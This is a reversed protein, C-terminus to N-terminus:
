DIEYDVEDEPLDRVNAFPVYTRRVVPQAEVHRQPVGSMSEGFANGPEAGGQEEGGGEDTEDYEAISIYEPSEICHEVTESLRSGPPTEQQATPRPSYRQKKISDPVAELNEEAKRKKSNTTEATSADGTKRREANEVDQGDHEAIGIYEPSDIPNKATECLRRGLPTEQLATPGPSCSQKETNGSVVEPTEEAKRGKLGKEKAHLMAKDAEQPTQATSGDATPRPETNGEAQEYYEDIRIYDHREIDRETTEIDTNTPPSGETAEPEHTCKRRKVRDPIVELAEPKRKKLGTEYAHPAVKGVELPTKTASGNGTPTPDADLTKQDQKTASTHEPSQTDLKETEIHKSKPPHEERVEGKPACMQRKVRDPIPEPDETKLKESITEDSRSVAKGVGSPTEETSGDGAPARGEGGDNTKSALGKARQAARQKKIELKLEHEHLKAKFSKIKSDKAAIAEAISSHPELHEPNKKKPAMQHAPSVPKPIHFPTRPDLVTGAPMRTLDKSMNEASKTGKPKDGASKAIEQRVGASKSGDKRTRGANTEKTENGGPKTRTSEAGKPKIEEAKAGETKTAAPKPEEDAVKGMQRKLEHEHLQAKLDRIKAEYAALAEANGAPPKEPRKRNLATQHTRRVPRQVEVTTEDYPVEVAPIKKRDATKRNEEAKRRQEMIREFAQNQRLEEISPLSAMADASSPHPQLHELSKEGSSPSNAHSEANGAGLPAETTLIKGILQERQDNGRTEEAAKIGEATTKANAHSVANEVELFAGTAAVGLGVEKDEDSCKRKEGVKRRQDTETKIQVKRELEHIKGLIAANRGAHAPTADASEPDPQLHELTKEELAPNNAHSETNWAGLPAETTPIKGIPEEEEDNSKNKEVPNIRGAVSKAIQGKPGHEDISAIPDVGKSRLAAIAQAGDSVPKHPEPIKKHPSTGIADSLTNEVEPPPGTTSVEVATKKEQDLSRTNEAAKRRREMAKRIQFKLEIERIKAVSASSMSTPAAEATNSDLQLHELAKEELAPNNAHSEANGAGSLADTSPIKGMPKEERIKSKAKEGAKNGEVVQKPVQEKLELGPNPQLPELNKEEQTTDRTHAVINEVEFPTEATPIEEALRKGQGNGMSKETAGTGDMVMKKIQERSGHQRLTAALDPNKVPQAAVVQANDPTFQLRELIRKRAATDIANSMAKGVRVPTEPTFVKHTQPTEGSDMAEFESLEATVREIIETLVRYEARLEELKEKRASESRPTNRYNEELADRGKVRDLISTKAVTESASGPAGGTELHADAVPVKGATTKKGHRNEKDETQKSRQITTKQIKQKLELERLEAELDAIKAQQVAIEKARAPLSEEPGDSNQLGKIYNSLDQISKKITAIRQSRLAQQRLLGAARSSM